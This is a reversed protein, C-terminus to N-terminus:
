SAVGSERAADGNVSPQFDPGLIALAEAIVPAGDPEPIRRIADVLDARDDPAGASIQFAVVALSVLGLPLSREVALARAEELQDRWAPELEGLEHLAQLRVAVLQPAALLQNTADAIALAYDSTDRAAAFDQAVMQARAIELIQLPAGIMAGTEALSGLLEVAEAIASPDPAENAVGCARHLGGLAAFFTLGYRKSLQEADAGAERELAPEGRLAWMTASLASVNAHTNPSTSSTMDRAREFSARASALYGSLTQAYGRYAFLLPLLEVGGMARELEESSELREATALGAAELVDAPRGQMTSHLQSLVALGTHLDRGLETSSRQEVLEMHSAAVEFDAAITHRLALGLHAIMTVRELGHTESIELLDEWIPVLSSHAFGASANAAGALRFRLSVAREVNVADSTNIAQRYFQLAESAAAATSAADAAREWWITAKDNADAKTLHEAILDPRAHAVNPRTEVLATAFRLHRQMKTSMLMSDYVADRMLAHKFLYTTSPSAGSRYFLEGRVGLDLLQEVETSPAPSLLSIEDLAFERGIVSASQALDRVPGLMELRAMLLDQLTDPVVAATLGTSALAAALEEAFLPVGDSRSVISALLDPPLDHGAAGVAVASTQERTMRTLQMPTINSRPSLEPPRDPRTAVILLLRETDIEDAVRQLLEMTTPDVWHVDDLFFVTPQLRALELLWEILLDFLEVRRREASMTAIVPDEMPLGHLESLLALGRGPEIGVSALGGRLARGKEAASADASFNLARRHLEAMPFLPASQAYPSCAADIWSHDQESLQERFTDILRSKGIGAEGAVVVIQGWGECAQNWRDALLGIELTRGILPTKASRGPGLRPAAGGVRLVKTLEMPEAIGKLSQEGLSETVFVGSVLRRTAPSIAVSDEPAAGEVRAAINTSEGMAQVVGGFEDVVVPGTHIGVRIHLARGISSEVTANLRPVQDCMNLGSRVAREAANELAVPYGFYAVLGDGMYNGVHGGWEEIADRAVEHFSRMAASWTEADIAASLATSDIVDCFLVTLHRMEGGGSEDASEDFEIESVEASSLAVLVDGDYRAIGRVELEAAIEDIVEPDVDFERTLGRRSIRGHAALLREARDVDEFFEM